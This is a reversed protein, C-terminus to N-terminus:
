GLEELFEAIAGALAEPAELPIMHGAEPIVVKRAQPLAEVLRDSAQAIESKEEDGVCILAPVLIRPAREGLSWSRQALLNPYIVRPDTKLTDMYGARMVEPAVGKRFATMDFERRAKGESVLRARDILSDPCDYSGSSGCIVLGRVKEPATLSCQLAVVGGMGHGLLVAPRDVELADLVELAFDAMAEISALSVLSATRDHGPLDFALPSHRDGLARALSDFSRCNGGTHHLCLLVQGQSTDPPSEPLTTAGTHRLFTAISQVPVYKSPVKAPYHAASERAL